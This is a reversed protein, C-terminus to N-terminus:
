ILFVCHNCFSYFFFFSCVVLNLSKAQAELLCSPCCDHDMNNFLRKKDNNDENSIPLPLADEFAFSASEDNDRKNTQIWPMSGRRSKKSYQSTYEPLEINIKLSTAQDNNSTSLTRDMPASVPRCKSKPKNLHVNNDNDDFSTDEDFSSNFSVLKARLDPTSVKENHSDPPTTTITRPTNETPSLTIPTLINSTHEFLADTQHTTLTSKLFKMQQLYSENQYSGMVKEKALRHKFCRPDQDIDKGLWSASSQRKYDNRSKTKNGSITINPQSLYRHTKPVPNSPAPEQKSENDFEFEYKIKPNLPSLLKSNTSKIMQTHNDLLEKLLLEYSLLRGEMAQWTLDENNIDNYTNFLTLTPLQKDFSPPIASHVIAGIDSQLPQQISPSRALSPSKTIQQLHKQQKNQNDNNNQNFEVKWGACVSQCVLSFLLTRTGTSSGRKILHLFISSTIQRVTSAKHHLFIEFTPWYSEWETVLFSSPLINILMSCMRLLGEISYDTNSNNNSLNNITQIFLDIQDDPSLFKCITRFLEIANQRVSLQPNQAFQFLKTKLHSEKYKSIILNASNSLISQHKHIHKFSVKLGLLLGEIQKWNNANEKEQILTLIKIILSQIQESNFSILLLNLQSASKKRITSWIDMLGNIFCTQIIPFCDNNDNANLIYSKNYKIWDSIFQYLTNRISHNSTNITMSVVENLSSKTIPLYRSLKQLIDDINKNFTNMTQHNQKSLGYRKEMLFTLLIVVSENMPDLTENEFLQELSILIQKANNKNHQNIQLNKIKEILNDM